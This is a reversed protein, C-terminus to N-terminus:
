SLQRFNHDCTLFYYSTHFMAETREKSKKGRTSGPCSNLVDRPERWLRQALVMVSSARSDANDVFSGTSEKVCLLKLSVPRVSNDMRSKMNGSFHKQWETLLNALACVLVHRGWPVNPLSGKCPKPPSFYHCLQIDTSVINQLIKGAESSGGSRKKIAWAGTSIM